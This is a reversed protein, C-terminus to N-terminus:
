ICSSPIIFRHYSKIGYISICLSVLATAWPDESFHLGCTVKNILVNVQLEVGGGKNVVNIM